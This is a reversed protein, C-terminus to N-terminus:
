DIIEFKTEFEKRTIKTKPIPRAYKWLNTSFNESDWAIFFGHKTKGIVNYQFWNEQNNSVEMLVGDGIIPLDDLPNIPEQEKKLSESKLDNSSKSDFSINVGKNAKIKADELDEKALRERAEEIAKKAHQLNRLLEDFTKGFSTIGCDDTYYGILSNDECIRVSINNYDIEKTPEEEVILHHEIREAPYHYSMGDEFKIRYSDFQVNYDEIVGEKGVYKDMKTSMYGVNVFKAFEFRFGRVKKGILEEKKM